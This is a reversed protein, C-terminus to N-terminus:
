IKKITITKIIEEISGRSEELTRMMFPKGNRSYELLNVVPIGNSALRTNELYKVSKYKKKAKWSIKTLGTGVPTAKEMNTKLLDIATDLKDSCDNIVDDTATQLINRIELCGESISRSKSM